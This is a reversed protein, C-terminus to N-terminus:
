STCFTGYVNAGQYSNWPIALLAMSRYGAVTYGVHLFQKTDQMYEPGRRRIQKHVTLRNLKAPLSRSLARQRAIAFQAFSCFFWYFALFGGGINNLSPHREHEVSEWRAQCPECRCLYAEITTAVQWFRPIDTECRTPLTSGLERAEVGLLPRGCWLCTHTHTHTRARTHTCRQTHTQRDTQRDTGTGSGIWHTQTRKVVISCQKSAEKRGEKRGETRGGKRGEKTGEKLACPTSNALTLASNNSCVREQRKGGGGGGGRWQHKKPQM